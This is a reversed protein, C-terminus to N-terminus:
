GKLDFLAPNCIGGNCLEYRTFLVAYINRVSQLGAPLQHICEADAASDWDVTPLVSSTMM